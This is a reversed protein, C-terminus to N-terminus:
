TGESVFPRELLEEILRDVLANEHLIRNVADCIPM